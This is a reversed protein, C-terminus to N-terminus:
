VEDGFKDMCKRIVWGIFVFFLSIVAIPLFLEPTFWNSSGISNGRRMSYVGYSIYQLALHSFAFFVPCVFSWIGWSKDAGVIVSFICIIIPFILIYMYIYFENTCIDFFQSVIAALLWIGLFILMEIIKSRNASKETDM